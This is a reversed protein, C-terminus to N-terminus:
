LQDAWTITDFWYHHREPLWGNQTNFLIWTNLFNLIDADGKRIGFGEAHKSIPDIDPQFILGKHQNLLYGTKQTSSVIAHLKGDLLATILKNESPFTKITAEPFRQRLAQEGASNEIVGIITNKRNFHRRDRFKGALRRNALLTSISRSYPDSFNILLARKPTLSLGSIIIDYKDMLLGSLISPWSTEIFEPTVGIDRALKKAVDVEYGILHGKNGHMVWPVFISVGVRLTGRARITQLQDSSKFILKQGPQPLLHTKNEVHGACGSLVVVLFLLPLTYQLQFLRKM